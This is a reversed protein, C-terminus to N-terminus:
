ELRMLKKLNKCRMNYVENMLSNLKTKNRSVTTDSDYYSGIIKKFYFFKSGGIIARLWMDGDGASIYSNDFYGFKEHISKRWVPMCHPSNNFFLNKISAEEAHFVLTSKCDEFRENKNNTILTLGYILDYENLLLLSNTLLKISDKSRRDDPNWNTVLEASSNKVCINWCEYLGPDENLDILRFNSYKSLYPQLIEKSKDPSNPNLFLFEINEFDDQELINNILGQLFEESKYIISFSTVKYKQISM